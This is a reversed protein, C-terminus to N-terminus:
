KVQSLVYEVIRLEAADKDRPLNSLWVDQGNATAWGSYRKTVRCYDLEVVIGSTKLNRNITQTTTM